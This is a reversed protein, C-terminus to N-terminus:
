LGARLKKRARHRLVRVSGVSVGLQRAIGQDGYGMAPLVVVAREQADLLDLLRGLESHGAAQEGPDVADLDGYVDAVTRLDDPEIPADLPLKEHAGRPSDFGAGFADDELTTLAADFLGVRRSREGPKDFGWEPPHAIFQATDADTDYRALAWSAAPWGNDQWAQPNSLYEVVGAAMIGRVDDGPGLGLRMRDPELQERLRRVRGRKGEEQHGQAVKTALLADAVTRGEPPWRASLVTAVAQTLDYGSLVWREHARREIALGAWVLSGEPARLRTLKAGGAALAVLEGLPLLREAGDVTARARAGDDFVTSEARHGGLQALEYVVASRGRLEGSLRDFLPGFPDFDAANM